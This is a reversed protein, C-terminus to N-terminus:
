SQGGQTQPPPPYPQGPLAPAGPIAPPLGVGQSFNILKQADETQSLEMEEDPDYGLERMLTTDSIGIQRKAIASQVSPLDDHPLPNQWALSIDLDDAFGGLALLAKSVDIILEGYLCQKKESKKLLTLFLLEIAIGSLSGRPMVDIRGTAVGPVGSQEDIDSRIDAAFKLANALDSVIPVSSIKSQIDPLGIVKGPQLDFVSDGVGNSYLVPQGYMIQVLNMCSQLMNLANNMGVIDPTIDPKGWFDNPRPLNKNSFIPAFPYPWVIAPGASQWNGREGIRTWHAISWTDDDDPMDKAANGDPDIRTMEERYFVQVPRGNQQESVSYEICYLLVTECDQPATQVFITSPDLAILRFTTNTKDPIIRLFARGAMAGNIAHDQLMPIRAEKRGWCLNLFDQAEQPAGEEVSIELEKGFLFNVGADVIGVCRNSMVNPDTGNPMKKLPPDLDGDYAKWAAAIAKQREKDADTITYQPLAVTAGPPQLTQTM